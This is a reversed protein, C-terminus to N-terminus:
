DLNNKIAEDKEKDTVADAGGAGVVTGAAKAEKRDKKKKMREKFQKTQKATYYGTGDGKKVLGENAGSATNADDQGQNRLAQQQNREYNTRRQDTNKDYRVKLGMKGIFPCTTIHHSKAHGKPLRCIPCNTTKM